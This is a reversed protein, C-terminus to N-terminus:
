KVDYRKKLEQIIELLNIDKDSYSKPSMLVGKSFYETVTSYNLLPTKKGKRGGKTPQFGIVTDTEGDVLEYGDSKDYTNYKIGDDILPMVFSIKLYHENLERDYRVFINEIIGDLFVKREEPSYNEYEEIRASYSSLWDVWKKQNGLEKIKLGSQEIEDNLKSLEESLNKEIRQYITEDYKKLHYKTEMEAISAQIDEIQRLLKTRKSKEKKIIATNDSNFEGKTDLVM